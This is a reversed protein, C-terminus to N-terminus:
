IGAYWEYGRDPWYGGRGRGIGALTARLEIREVYKAHKYGLMREVRLRAPAGNGVPLPRGNLRTALITQPHLADVMDVSEYYRNAGFSDACHFVVYRAGERAGAAALIPALVAGSWEGIASWGEVCDHRTIQTRQPMAALDALGLSLPRRVLGDVAIRWNVFGSGRHARYSPSAPDVNGNAKFIPSIDAAQFETALADHGILRQTSMTLREASGLLKLVDPSRSANECGAVVLGSGLLFGRRGIVV